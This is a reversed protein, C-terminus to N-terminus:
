IQLSNARDPTVAPHIRGKRLLKRELWWHYVVPVILMTMFEILMGGFVPLAMPRSLESGRGSALIVPLLAIITTVTTMVAPRIRRRGASVVLARLEERSEPKEARVLQDIYTSMLVGDDVCIGLLAIFGVIVAVTLYVPGGSPTAMIGISFLFDQVDPWIQMFVFGGAVALPVAGLFIILPIAITKFQMYMLIFILVLCAPILLSFRKKAEIQNHYNGVWRYYYGQPLDITREEPPLANDREIAERLLADAEEVLGGEDRDGSNLMVYGVLEGDVSRISAAGTVMEIDAVLSVPLMEGSSARIFIRDLDALQDRYDRSYMVRVNSRERGSVLTTVSMGGLAAAITKQIKEVSLGYRAAAARDVDFEIYPRRGTRLASVDRAGPVQELIDEFALAVREIERYDDGHIECGISTRIGSQLMVIRTEIPQLWSPAIGPMGAAERLETLISDSTVGDRWRDRPILTVVTEIMGSPAPDLPSDARGAKGVVRDVEPVRAMRANQIIMADVVETFGAQNLLSPMFLFSGEDLPPMFQTGIGPFLEKLVATPRFRDTDFGASDLPELVTGAGFALLFGIVILIAPFALFARRHDMSWELVPTYLGVIRDTVKDQSEHSLSEGAAKWLVLSVSAFVILSFLWNHLPLWSPSGASWATWAALAGVGTVAILTRLTKRSEKEKAIFMVALVPILTIATIGAAALVFTKTWALPIFLRGSQGSLFFVPIFSIITTGLSTMIAPAVETVADRVKLLVPSESRGPALSLHINETVVIGMDVLTGIAIAIGAFSMINASIGFIKMAIFTLLVAYPLSSAVILSSRLHLLFLLIVLMTILMELVIASSLTSVTEEILQRRDYYANVTVGEPLGPRLEDLRSEVAEIVEVPNADKRMVVIGGALEGRHDALAGRRFAPSTSVVAIDSITLPIGDVTTVLTEELDQIDQLQGTGHVIFEMGSEEITRGGIDINAQSVADMVQTIDLGYSYLTNPDVEVTYELVHGGISSVESVGPVSQLAYRITYDQLTRLTGLDYPGEVTYWYIQGLPTADPGLEPRADSPLLRSVGSLQELVRTRAWYFDTADEFVVYIQSFGFGSMGRVQRVQPMGQLEVTLPYTIQDQVDEPNRGPWETSVIVQNESIDPFADVPVSRFAWIGAAGAVSALLIVVVPNNLCAHVLRNM